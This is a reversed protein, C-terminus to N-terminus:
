YWRLVALIPGAAVVFLIAAAIWWRTMPRRAAGEPPRDDDFVDDVEDVETALLVLSADDVQDNPVYLDVRAMEGVTLAYPNDISGRLEVDFGEDQLRAAVVRARFSGYVSTLRTM